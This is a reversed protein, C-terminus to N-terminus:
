LTAGADIPKGTLFDTITIALSQQNARAVLLEINNGSKTNVGVIGPEFGPADVVYSYTENRPLKVKFLGESGTDYVFMSEGKSNKVQVKANFVPKNVQQEIVRLNYTVEPAWWLEVTLTKENEKLM